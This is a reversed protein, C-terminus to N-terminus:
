AILKEEDVQVADMTTGVVRLDKAAQKVREAM